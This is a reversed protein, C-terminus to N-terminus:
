DHLLFVDVSWSRRGDVLQVTGRYRFQNGYRDRSRSERYVLGIEEVRQGLSALEEPQSVGDHNADVWLLLSSFIADRDDLVGDGNGGNEPRDYAALAAYGNPPRADLYQETYNGFLEGGNDIHGNHNRDLVVFAWSSGPAPWSNREATGDRNVDFRVGGALDTMELRREDLAILVPCNEEPIGPDVVPKEWETCGSCTVSTTPVFSWFILTNSPSSTFAPGSAGLTISFTCNVAACQTFACATTGQCSAGAQLNLANALTGGVPRFDKAGVHYGSTTGGQDYCLTEEISPHCISQCDSSCSCSADVKSYSQHFYDGVHREYGHFEWPATFPYKTYVNCVPYPFSTKGGPLADLLDGEQKSEPPIQEALALTVRDLVKDLCQFTLVSPVPTSGGMWWFAARYDKHKGELTLSVRYTTVARLLSLAPQDAKAVEVFERVNYRLWLKLDPDQFAPEWKMMYGLSATKSSEHTTGDRLIEEHHVGTVDIHEPQGFSVLESLKLDWAEPVYFTKFDSVQISIKHSENRGYTEMLHYSLRIAKEFCEPRGGKIGELVQHVEPSMPLLEKGPIIPTWAKEEQANKEAQTGVPAEPPQKGAASISGNAALGTLLFLAPALWRLLSRTSRSSSM